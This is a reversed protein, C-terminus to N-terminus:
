LAAFLGPVNDASARVPHANGCDDCCGINHNRSDNVRSLGLFGDLLLIDSIAGSQMKQVICQLQDVLLTRFM